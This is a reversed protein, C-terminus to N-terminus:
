PVYNCPDSHHSCYSLLSSAEISNRLYMLTSGEQPDPQYCPGRLRFVYELVHMASALFRPTAEDPKGSHHLRGPHEPELLYLICQM